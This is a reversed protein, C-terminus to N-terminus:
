LAWQVGTTVLPFMWRAPTTQTVRMVGLEAGVEARAPGVPVSLGGSLVASLAYVSSEAGLVWAGRGNLWWRTNNGGGVRIAIAPGAGLTQELLPVEITENPEGDVNLASGYYTVLPLTTVLLGARLAVHLRERSPTSMLIQLETPLRPGLTPTEVPASLQPPTLGHRAGIVFHPFTGIGLEGGLLPAFSWANIYMMGDASYLTPANALFYGFFLRTSLPPGVRPSSVPVEEEAPRDTRLPPTPRVQPVKTRSPNGNTVTQDPGQTETRQLRDEPLPPGDGVVVREGWEDLVVWAAGWTETLMGSEGRVPVTSTWQVLHAGLPLRREDAAYLVEGNVLLVDPRQSFSLEIIAEGQLKNTAARYASEVQAGYSAEIPTTLAAAYQLSRESLAPDGQSLLEYAGRAMFLAGLLERSVAGHVCGQQLVRELADLEVAAEPEAFAVPEILGAVRATLEDVHVVEICEARLSASFLLLLLM